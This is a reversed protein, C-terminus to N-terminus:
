FEHHWPLPDHYSAGSLGSPDGSLSEPRDPSEFDPSRKRYDCTSQTFSIFLPFWMDALDMFIIQASPPFVLSVIFSLESSCITVSYVFCSASVCFYACFSLRYCLLDCQRTSSSLCYDYCLFVVTPTARRSWSLIRGGARRPLQIRIILRSGASPTMASAGLGANRQLM